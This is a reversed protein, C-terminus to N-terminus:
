AHSPSAEDFEDVIMVEESNQASTVPDTCTSNIELNNALNEMALGLEMTGKNSSSAKKDPPKAQKKTQM